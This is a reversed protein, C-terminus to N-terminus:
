IVLFGVQADIPPESTARLLRPMDVSTVIRRHTGWNDKEEERRQSVMLRLDETVRAASGRRHLWGVFFAM